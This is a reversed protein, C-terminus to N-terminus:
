LYSETFYIQVATKLVTLVGELTYKGTNLIIDYVSLDRIDIGYYELYRLRESEERALTERRAHELDTGDRKAIRAIRVDLPATLLINLDSNSGAMWAALQGDIVVKGQEAERKLGDDLLRDITADKQAVRSFEEITMGRAAALERFVTGASARRLGFLKALTDAVSSKGTGHLGGITIVRKM